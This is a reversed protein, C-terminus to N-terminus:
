PLESPSVPDFGISVVKDSVSPKGNCFSKLYFLQQFIGTVAAWTDDGEGQPDMSCIKYRSKARVEVRVCMPRDSIENPQSSNKIFRTHVGTPSIEVDDAAAEHDEEGCTSIDEVNVVRRPTTNIESAAAVGAGSNVPSEDSKESLRVKRGPVSPPINNDMGMNHLPLSPVSYAGSSASASTMAISKAQKSDEESVESGDLKGRADNMRTSSTSKQRMSFMAKVRTRIAGGNDSSSVSTQGGNSSGLSSEDPVSSFSAGWKDRYVNTLTPPPLNTSKPRQCEAEEIGLPQSLDDTACSAPNHWGSHKKMHSGEEDSTNEDYDRAFYPQVPTRVSSATSTTETRKHNRGYGMPTSEDGDIEGRLGLPTPPTTAGNYVAPDSNRKDKKKSKKNGGLKRFPSLIRGSQSKSTMESDSTVSNAARVKTDASGPVLTKDLWANHVVGRSNERQIVDVRIEMPEAETDFPTLVAFTDHCIMSNVSDYTDGGSHTRNCAYLIEKACALLQGENLDFLPCRDGEHFMLGLSSDGLGTLGLVSDRFSAGKSFHFSDPDVTYFFHGCLTLLIATKFLSRLMNGVIGPCDLQQRQVQLVRIRDACDVLVRVLGCIISEIGTFREGNIVIVDRCM